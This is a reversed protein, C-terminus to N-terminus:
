YRQEKVVFRGGSLVTEISEVGLTSWGEGEEM